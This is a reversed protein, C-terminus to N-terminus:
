ENEKLFEAIENISFEQLNGRFRRVVNGEPDIILTEPVSQIGTIKSFIGKSDKAVKAFPNGNNQLFLKTNEDIDRWAIGYIDVIKSDRLRLLIDHEARCTTCWSAFFNVISYKGTITKKSFIENKDFLDPLSFEPLEIQVKSFHISPESGDESVPIAFGDAQKKNLKYTSFGILSILFILTLFPLFKKM